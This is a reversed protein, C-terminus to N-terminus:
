KAELGSEPQTEDPETADPENAPQREPETEPEAEPLRAAHIPSPRLVKYRPSALGLTTSAYEPMHQM